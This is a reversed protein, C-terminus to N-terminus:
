LATVRDCQQGAVGPCDGAPSGCRVGIRQGAQRSQPRVQTRRNRDRWRGGCGAITNLPKRIQHAIRSGASRARSPGHRNQRDSKDAALGDIMEATKSAVRDDSRREVVGVERNDFASFHTLVFYDLEPPLDKIKEVM